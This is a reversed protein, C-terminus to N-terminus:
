TNACVRFSWCPNCGSLTERWSWFLNAAALRLSTRTSRCGSCSSNTSTSIPASPRSRLSADYILKMHRSAIRILVSRYKKLLAPSSSAASCRLPQKGDSINRKTQSKCSITCRSAYAWTRIRRLAVSRLRSHLSTPYACLWKPIM